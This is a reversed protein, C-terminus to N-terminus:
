VGIGGGFSLFFFGPAISIHDTSSPTSPSHPLTRPLTSLQRPTEESFPHGQTKEASGSAISPCGGAPSCPLDAMAQARMPLLTSRVHGAVQLEKTTEMGVCSGESM